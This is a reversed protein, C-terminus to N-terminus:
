KVEQEKIWADLWDRIRKARSLNLYIGRWFDGDGVNVVVSKVAQRDADDQAEFVSSDNKIRLMKM